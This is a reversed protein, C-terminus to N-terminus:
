EKETDEELTEPSNSQVTSSDSKKVARKIRRLADARSLMILHGCGTCKLRFDIGVRLIEWTNSGCPHNKKTEVIDGIHYKNYDM